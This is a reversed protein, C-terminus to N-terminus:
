GHDRANCYVARAIAVALRQGGSMQSIPRRLNPIHIDLRDLVNRLETPMQKRDVQKLIGLTRRM